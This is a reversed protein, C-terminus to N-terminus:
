GRMMVRVINDATREMVRWRTPTESHTAIGGASAQVYGGPQASGDDTVYLKGMLGVTDWESRESRPVYVEDANWAPNVAFWEETHAPRVETGDENMQAPIEYAQRLVRGFADTLFRGQWDDEYSDGVLGATGSVIGLVDDDAGALRIQSGYLTVFRGIRDEGDPNGDAWEFWEAYDAGTPNVSKQAYVKGEWDVRLGNSRNDADNGNGVEFISLANSVVKNYKGTSIKNRGDTICGLGIAVAGNNVYSNNEVICEYGAAVGGPKYSSCCFGMAISAQNEAHCGDNFGGLAVSLTGNATNTSHPMKISKNGEGNVLNSPGAGAPGQPGTAGTDGKPGQPGTAGTDGKPGQPGTAGTNGKPGQPGTDGKEGKFAGAAKDALIGDATSKAYNGQAKAYDGQQGAYGGQAETQEGLAEVETKLETTQAILQTLVDVEQQQEETVGDLHELVDFLFATSTLRTDGNYLEVTAKCRGPCSVDASDPTYTVTGAACDASALKQVVSGDERGITVTATTGNAFVAPKGEATFQMVVRYANVDGQWFYLNTKYPKKEYMDFAVHFEKRLQEMLREREVCRLAASNCKIIWMWRSRWIM